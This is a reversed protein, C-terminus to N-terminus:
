VNRLEEVIATTYSNRHEAAAQTGKRIADILIDFDPPAVDPCVLENRAAALKYFTVISKVIAVRYDMPLHDIVVQEAVQARFNSGHEGFAIYCFDRVMSDSAVHTFFHVVAERMAAIDDKSEIDTYTLPYVIELVPRLIDAGAANFIRAYEAATPVSLGREYRSWTREDVGVLNAMKVVSLNLELRLDHLSDALRKQLEVINM